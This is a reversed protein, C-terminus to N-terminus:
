DQGKEEPLLRLGRARRQCNPPLFGQACPCAGKSNCVGNGHCQQRCTYSQSKLTRSEVCLRNICIRGTDCESGNKVELLDPASGALKYDITVCINDRVYAYIVAGNAQYFPTRSPYTCILRGCILNRWGCPTYKNRDKGCNGFSDTQSQIEEYCAFPANKFRDFNSISKYKFMYRNKM